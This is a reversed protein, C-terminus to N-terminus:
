EKSFLHASRRGFWFWHWCLWWWWHWVGAAAAVVASPLNSGKMKRVRPLISGIMLRVRGLTNSRRWRSEGEGYLQKEIQVRRRRNMNEFWLQLPHRPLSVLHTASPVPPNVLPPLHCPKPLSTNSNFHPLSKHNRVLSCKRVTLTKSLGPVTPHCLFDNGFDPKEVSPSHM